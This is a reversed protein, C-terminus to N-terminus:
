KKEPPHLNELAQRLQRLEQIVGLLLLSSDYAAKISSSARHIGRDPDRYAGALVELVDPDILREPMSEESRELPSM